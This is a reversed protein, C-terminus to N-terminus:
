ERGQPIQPRHLLHGRVIEEVLSSADQDEEECEPCGERPQAQLARTPLLGGVLNSVHQTERNLGSCEQLIRERSYGCPTTVYLIDRDHWLALASPSCQEAAALSCVRLAPIRKRKGRKVQPVIAVITTVLHILVTM